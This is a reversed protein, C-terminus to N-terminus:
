VARCFCVHVRLSAAPTLLAVLPCLLAVSLRDAAATAAVAAASNNRNSVSIQGRHHTGHNVVHALMLSRVGSLEDGRTNRYTFTSCAASPSLTSM